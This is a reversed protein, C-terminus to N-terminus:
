QTELTHFQHYPLVHEIVVVGDFNHHIKMVSFHDCVSLQDIGECSSKGFLSVLFKEVVNGLRITIEM